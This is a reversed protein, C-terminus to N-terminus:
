GARSFARERIDQGGEYSARIDERPLVVDDDM